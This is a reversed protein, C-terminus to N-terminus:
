NMIKKKILSNTQFKLFFTKIIIKKHFLNNTYTVQQNALIDELM